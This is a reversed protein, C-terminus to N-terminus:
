GGNRRGQCQFASPQDPLAVSRFAGRRWSRARDSSGQSLRAAPIRSRRSVMRVSVRERGFRESVSRGYPTAHLLGGIGNTNALTGREFLFPPPDRVTRLAPPYEAHTPMLLRLGHRQVLEAPAGDGQM